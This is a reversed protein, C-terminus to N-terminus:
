IAQGIVGRVHAIWVLVPPRDMTWPGSDRSHRLWGPPCDTTDSNTAAFQVEGFLHIWHPPVTPWAHIESVSIGTEVKQGAFGGALPVVFYRIVEGHRSPEHGEEALDAVFRGVGDFPIPVATM